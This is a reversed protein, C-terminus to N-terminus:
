AMQERAVQLLQRLLDLDIDAVTKLSISASGVKV